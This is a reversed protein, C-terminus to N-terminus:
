AFRSTYSITPLKGPKPNVYCFRSEYSNILILVTGDILARFLKILGHILNTHLDTLVTFMCFLLEDPAFVKFLM